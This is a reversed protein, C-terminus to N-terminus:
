PDEVVRARHPRQSLVATLIQSVPLGAHRDALGPARRSSGCPPRRFTRAPVVVPPAEKETRAVCWAATATPDGLLIAAPPDDGEHGLPRTVRALAHHRLGEGDAPPSYSVVLVRERDVMGHQHRATFAFCLTPTAAQAASSCATESMHGIYRGAEYECSEYSPPFLIPILSPVIAPYPPSETPSCVCVCVCM